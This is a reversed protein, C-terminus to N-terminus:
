KLLWEIVASPDDPSEEARSPAPPQPRLEEQAATPAQLPPPAADVTVRRSSSPRRPRHRPATSAEATVEPAPLASSPSLVEPVPRASRLTQDMEKSQPDRPGLRLRITPTPPGGSAPSKFVDFRWAVFSAMLFVTVTVLAAPRLQILRRRVAM